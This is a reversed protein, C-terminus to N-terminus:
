RLKSIGTKINNELDEIGKNVIGSGITGEERSSYIGAKKIISDHHTDNLFGYQRVSARGPPTKYLPYWNLYGM